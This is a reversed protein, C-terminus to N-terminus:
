ARGCALLRHAEGEATGLWREFLELRRDINDFSDIYQQRRSESLNAAVKLASMRERDLFARFLSMAEGQEAEIQRYAEQIQKRAADREERHASERRSRETSGVAARAQEEEKAKAVLYARPPGYEDRIANALWAGPTTRYEAYPLYGLCRRCVEPKEQALRRAAARGVGQGVLEDVLAADAVPRAAATNEATTETNYTRGARTFHDDASSSFPAEEVPSISNARQTFDGSGAALHDSWGRLFADPVIRVHKTPAGAFRFLRVEVLGREALLALARDAQKPSVRCEGWWDARGKALWLHGDRKVRLRTRGDRSPLHWYVIQSLVIGAVLDGAMDIYARKVEITDRSSREWLLFQEFGGTPGSV